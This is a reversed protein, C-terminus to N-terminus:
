RGRRYERALESTPIFSELGNADKTTIGDAPKRRNDLIQAASGKGFYEDFQPALSPDSLLLDVQKKNMPLPNQEMARQAAGEGFVEDFMAAKQPDRRMMEITAPNTDRFDFLEPMNVPTFAKDAKTTELAKNMAEVDSRLPAGGEKVHRMIGQAFKRATTDLGQSEMMQELVDEAHEGYQEHLTEAYGKLDPQDSAVFDVFGYLVSKVEAKTLPARAAEPLGMAEQANMRESILNQVSGPDDEIVSAKLDQLEEFAQEAALAPDTSRLKVLAKAAKAVSGYLAEQRAYDAAGAVPELDELRGMIDSTPLQAMGTTAEFYKRADERGNLWKEAAVEGVVSSVQELSLEEGGYQIGVGEAEMSALDSKILGKFKAKEVSSESNLKAAESRAAGGIERSLAQVTKYDLDALPGEGSGWADVLGNAYEERSKADPLDAAIGRVRSIATTEVIRERHRSAVKASLAGNAEASDIIGALAVVREQLNKDAEEDDGAIYAQRELSRFGEAIGDEAATARQTLERKAQEKNAKREYIARRTLFTKQALEQVEEPLAALTQKQIEDIETTLAAPDNEHEDYAANLSQDIEASLRWSFASLAARDHADGKRTGNRKLELAPGQETKTQLGMKKWAWQRVQGATKGPLVSPNAQLMANAKKEGVVSTLVDLIPADPSAGLVGKAGAPGLFYGLYVDGDTPSFGAAKLGNQIKSLYGGALQRSLNGDTRLELLQADTKGAALDPRQSKIEELWTGEIFQGAGTATSLKNKANPNGGSERGIVRDILSANVIAEPSDPLAVSTGASLGAKRGEETGERIQAKAKIEGLAGALSAASSAARLWAKENGPVASGPKM